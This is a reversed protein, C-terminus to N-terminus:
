PHPTGKRLGPVRPSPADAPPDPNERNGCGNGSAPPLGDNDEHNAARCVLLRPRHRLQVLRVLRLADDQAGRSHEVARCEDLVKVHGDPSRLSARPLCRRQACHGCHRGTEARANRWSKSCSPPLLPRPWPTMRCRWARRLRGPSRPTWRCEAWSHSAVTRLWKSREGEEAVFCRCHAVTFIAWPHRCLFAHAGRHVGAPEICRADAARPSFHRPPAGQRPQMACWLRCRM